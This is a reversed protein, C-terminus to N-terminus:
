DPSGQVGMTWCKNMIALDSLKQVPNGLVQVGLNIVIEGDM